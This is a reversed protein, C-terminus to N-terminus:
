SGGSAESCRLIRTFRFDELVVTDCGSVAGSDFDDFVAVGIRGGRPVERLLRERHSRRRLEGLQRHRIRALM